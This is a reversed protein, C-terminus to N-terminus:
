GEGGAEDETQTEYHRMFLDELTPPHSTISEVGLNTLQELAQNLHEPDVEFRAKGDQMTFAHIGEHDQLAETPHQTRAIITTRTLHRLEDLTGSEVRKGDRIITIRDCLAEVDAFVHSSLLVTAGEQRAERISDRFAAVMLPDLGTTPEDLLYLDVDSAFASIIAVKQRNGRSYTGTKKTPDLDFRQILADRKDPDHGGRLRGFLDITEGGTLKPWLRVDDPVYALNKHLEVADEWPDQGLVTVPGDDKRMLGLLIRITTSKGAGNPGLLGHVEGEPVKLHFGDLAKTQGFRKELAEAHIALTSM